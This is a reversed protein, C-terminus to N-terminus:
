CSEPVTVTETEKFRLVKALLSNLAEERATRMDSHCSLSVAYSSDTVSGTEAKVLFNNARKNYEYEINIQM